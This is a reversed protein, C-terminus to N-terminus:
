ECDGKEKMWEGKEIWTCYIEGTSKDVMELQEVQVTKAFIKEAILEKVKAVKNEIWLGLSALAQKVKQIFTTIISQHNEESGGFWSLNALVTIKGCVIGEATGEPCPVAQGSGLSPDFDEMAKGVIQGAKTAKMGVGPISSTTISDGIKIPGNLLSVKAPVRGSLALQIKASSESGVTWGPETSVIGALMEDYPKESIKVGEKVQPDLSVLTGPEYKERSATWEALDAGANKKCFVMTLYPPINYASDTAYSGAYHSHWSWYQGNGGTVPVEKVGPEIVGGSQGTVAHTHTWTGGYTGYTAGGMPFYSDLASFRTWGTPCATDFLAIQGVPVVNSGNISGAVTLSGGFWASGAMGLAIGITGAQTIDIQHGYGAKCNANNTHCYAMGYLTGFTSGDDPIAFSTGMSWIHGIKTSDYIGYMGASRESTSGVSLKGTFTDDADSRLFSAAHLTDVTDADPVTGTVRAGPVTGATLVGNLWYWDWGTDADDLFGQISATVMLTGLNTAGSRFNIGGYGGKTGDVTLASYTSEAGGATIQSTGSLTIDGGSVTLDGVVEGNLTGAPIRYAWNGGNNLLGFYDATGYVYGLLTDDQRYFRMGGVTAHDSHWDVYAGSGHLYPRTAGFLIDGGSVTLDGAVALSGTGYIPGQFYGAYASGTALLGYGGTGNAHITWDAASQTVQLKYGPTTTGIGVNGGTFYSNGSGASEIPGVSSLIKNAFYWRDNNEFSIVGTKTGDTSPFNIDGGNGLQISVGSSGATITDTFRGTGSVDLKYGPGTTGIGVNGNELITMATAGSAGTGIYLKGTASGYAALYANGGVSQLLTKGSNSGWIEILANNTTDSVILAKRTPDHPTPNTTGIGVNGTTTNIFVGRTGTNWDALAFTNTGRLWIGLDNAGETGATELVRIAGSPNDFYAAGGKVHLKGLPGTTGIGVNGSFYTYGSTGGAITLYAAIDNAIGGRFQAVNTAYLTGGSVYLGGPMTIYSSAKIYPNAASFRLNGNSDSVGTISVYGGVTLDTGVGLSGSMTDSTNFVYIDEVETANVCDTCVLNGTLTSASVDGIGSINPSGSGTIAGTLTFAAVNTPDITGAFSHTGTGSVTLNGATTIADYFYFGSTADTDFHAYTSNLAGIRIYKSSSTLELPYAATAGIDVDLKYDPTTDGIGVSTGDDYIVSDGIASSSTWRTVYNTTGSGTVGSVASWSTKCDSGICLGTSGKVYGTANVDGGATVTGSFYGYKWSQGSAGVSLLPSGPLIDSDFTIASVRNVTSLLNKTFALEPNNPAKYSLTIDVKVGGKAGAMSIKEFSLADVNVRDSTIAVAEGSGEQIYLVGDAVSFTTQTDGRMTLVLTSGTASDILSAERVKGNILNMVYRLNSDVENSALQTSHIRTVNWVIAMLSTAIAGFIAVYILIEVLGQGKQRFEKKQKNM